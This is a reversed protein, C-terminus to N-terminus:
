RAAFLRMLFVGYFAAQAEELTRYKPVCLPAYRRIVNGNDDLADIKYYLNTTAAEPTEDVEDAPEGKYSRGFETWPGDKSYQVIVRMSYNADLIISM